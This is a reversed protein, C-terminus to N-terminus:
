NQQTHRMSAWKICYISVEGDAILIKGGPKLDEALNEYSCIIIRENGPEDYDMGSFEILQGESLSLSGGELKGTRIEPGKTDLLIACRCNIGRQRREEIAARLNPM